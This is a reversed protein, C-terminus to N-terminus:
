PNLRFRGRKRGQRGTGGCWECETWGEGCAGAGSGHCPPCRRLGYWRAMRVRDALHARLDGLRDRLPYREAM